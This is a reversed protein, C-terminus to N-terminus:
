VMDGLGGHVVCDWIYVCINKHGNVPRESELIKKIVLMEIKKKKFVVSVQVHRRSIPQRLVILTKM